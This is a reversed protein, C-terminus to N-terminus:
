QEIITKMKKLSRHLQVGVANASMKMCEAIEKNSYGDFYKMQVITQQKPQLQMLCQRIYEQQEHSLVLEDPTQEQSCLQVVEDIDVNDPKNVNRHVRYFDILTNNAIQFVWTKFSAKSSDFGDLHLFVKRFIDSVIDETTETHGVRKMVFGYIMDIYLEYLEAFAQEDTRAREALENHDLM